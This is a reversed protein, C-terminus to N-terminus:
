AEVLRAGRMAASASSGARPRPRRRLQHAAEEGVRRAADRASRGGRVIFGSDGRNAITAPSAEPSRSAPRSSSPSARASARRQRGLADAPRPHGRAAELGPPRVVLERHAAVDLHQAVVALDDADAVLEGLPQQAVLGVDEDADIRGVEVEVELGPQAGRPTLVTCKTLGDIQAQRPLRTSFILCRRRGPATCRERELRRDVGLVADGRGVDAVREGVHDRELRRPGLRARREADASPSVTIASSGPLRRESIWYM